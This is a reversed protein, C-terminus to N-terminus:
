YTILMLRYKFMKYNASAQFVMKLGKYYNVNWFSNSDLYEHIRQIFDDTEYYVPFNTLYNVYITDSSM